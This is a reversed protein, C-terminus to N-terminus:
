VTEGAARRIAAATEDPKSWFPSHSADLTETKINVGKAFEEVMVKQFEYPIAQDKLCYLYTSPVVRWAANTLESQFTQYSHHKLTAAIMAAQDERIDNYFVQAATAPVNAMMEDASLTYWPAPKGGTAKSLGNGEPLLFACCFFLHVVGGPLGRARRSALDLDLIAESAPVGGYSHCVVVVEQGTEVQTKIHKRVKAVDQDFNPLPPLAGVSPMTVYETSYGHDELLRGVLAFCLPSHWAGPVFLITPRAM